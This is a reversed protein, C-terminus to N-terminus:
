ELCCIKNSYKTLFSGSTSGLSHVELADVEFVISKPVRTSLHFKTLLLNGKEHNQPSLEPSGAGTFTKGWVKEQPLLRKQM